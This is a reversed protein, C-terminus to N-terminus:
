IIFFELMESFINEICHRYVKGFIAGPRIFKLKPVSICRVTYGAATIVIDTNNNSPNIKLKSLKGGNEWKENEKDKESRNEIVPKVYVLSTLM